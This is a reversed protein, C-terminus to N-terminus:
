AEDEYLEDRKWPGIDTVPTSALRAFLAKRATRGIAAGAAFPVIRAVPRGHSTVVYTAGGRVKRLVASFDRNAAASSISSAM